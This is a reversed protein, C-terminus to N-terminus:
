ADEAKWKTWEGAHVEYFGVSEYLGRANNKEKVNLHVRECGDQEFLWSVGESLLAKGYGKGRYAEDTALFHVHGMGTAEIQVHIYGALHGDEEKLFIRNKEGNLEVLEKTSYYTRPFSKEHLQHLADFQDPAYLTPAQNTKGEFKEKQIRYLYARQDGQIFGRNVFFATSEANEVHNFSMAEKLNPLNRELYNYLMPAVSAFNHGEKVFPGWFWVKEKEVDSDGGFVGVLNGGIVCKVFVCERRSQYDNLEALIDEVSDACHLCQTKPNKNLEAMFEAIMPFERPSVFSLKVSATSM